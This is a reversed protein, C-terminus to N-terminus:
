APPKPIRAAAAVRDRSSRLAIGSGRCWRRYSVIANAGNQRVGAELKQCGSSSMANFRWGDCARGHEDAPRDGFDEVSEHVRGDGGAEPEVAGGLRHDGPWLSRTSPGGHLAPSTVTVTSSGCRRSAIALGVCTSDVNEGLALVGPENGDLRGAEGAGVILCNRLRQIRGLAEVQDDRGAIRQELVAISGPRTPSLCGASGPSSPLSGATQDAPRGAPALPSAFRFLNRGRCRAGRVGTM